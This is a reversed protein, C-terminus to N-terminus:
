RGDRKRRLLLSKLELETVSMERSELLPAMVELKGLRDVDRCGGKVWSDDPRWNADRKEDYVENENETFPCCVGGQSRDQVLRLGASARIENRIEKFVHHLGNTDVIGRPGVLQLTHTARTRLRRGDLHEDGDLEAVVTHLARARLSDNTDFLTGPRPISEGDHHYYGHLSM